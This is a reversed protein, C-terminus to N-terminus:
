LMAWEPAMCNGFCYVNEDPHWVQIRAKLFLSLHDAQTVPPIFSGWQTVSNPVHQVKLKVFNGYINGDNEDKEM